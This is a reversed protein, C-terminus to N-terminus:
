HKSGCFYTPPKPKEAGGWVTIGGQGSGKCMYAAPGSWQDISQLCTQVQEPALTFKEDSYM